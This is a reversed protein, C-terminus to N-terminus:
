TVNSPCSCTSDYTSSHPLSGRMDLGMMQGFLGPPLCQMYARNLMVHLGQADGGDGMGGAGIGGGLGGEGAEGGAGRGGDGGIGATVADGLQRRALLLVVAVMTVLLLKAGHPLTLATALPFSLRVKVARQHSPNQNWGTESAIFTTTMPATAGLVHGSPMPLMAPGVFALGPQLSRDALRVTLTDSAKVQAPLLM